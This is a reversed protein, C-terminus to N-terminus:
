QANIQERSEEVFPLLRHEVVNQLDVWAQFMKHWEDFKSRDNNAGRYLDYFADITEYLTEKPIM